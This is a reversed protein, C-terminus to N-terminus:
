NIKLLRIENNTVAYLGDQGQLLNCGAEVFPETDPFTKSLSLQSGSHEVRQIGDDTAAFLIHGVACKGRISALWTDGKADETTTGLVTGDKSILTCRNYSKGGDQYSVFFWCRDSSFVCTTDYLHGKVPPVGVGDRIIGSGSDFVFFEYLEGARYFGFGFKDGVWFLTQNRVVQGITREVSGPTRALLRGNQTWYVYKGNADYVPLTGFRDVLAADVKNMKLDFALWQNDKALCTIDGNIRYRIRPELVSDFLKQGTPLGRMPERYYSGGEYYL